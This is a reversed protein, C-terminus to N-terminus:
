KSAPLVGGPLLTQAVVTLTQAGNGGYTWTGGEGLLAVAYRDNVYGTSHMRSLNALCCMWGQKVQWGAAAAPLGFLQYFGDCGYPQTSAMAGHLWPGVVPDEAAKAYFEVMARATVGTTGWFGPMSPPTVGGIGYHSTIWPMLGDGGALDYLWSGINDDSCAIMRRMSEQVRPENAQGDVLLRAAIFVKVLSAAPYWADIDGAGYLRGSPLDLVAVALRSLRSAGAAHANIVALTTPSPGAVRTPPPQEAPVELFTQVEADVLAEGMVRADDPPTIATLTPTAVAWGRVLSLLLAFLVMSIAVFTL